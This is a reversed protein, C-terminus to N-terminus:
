TFISECLFDPAVDLRQILESVRNRQTHGSCVLATKLGFDRGGRIDTQLTDGVMLVDSRLLGPHDLSAKEFARSFMVADPKSCRIFRTDLIGELVHAISGIAAEIRGHGAPYGLDGNAVVTPVPKRRLMNLTKNIGDRWEFGDDDLLAIGAIESDESCETLPIPELGARRIYEASAPTGLYGVKGETIQEALVEGALIGSSIFRDAAITPRGESNMYYEALVEPSRSADNTVVYLDKGATILREIVEPSPGMLGSADILVGFADLFIVPFDDALDEFSREQM